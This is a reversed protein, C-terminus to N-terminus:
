FRLRVCEGLPLVNGSAASLTLSVAEVLSQTGPIARTLYAALDKPTLNAAHCSLLIFCPSDSLLNKVRELLVPLDRELKWSGRAGRGFAPPDLVFADYKRDRRKERALFTLVDDVIWRIPRDALGSCAATERAWSVASRAGDVHCVEVAESAASASLTAAGTYAFANLVKVPRGAQQLVETLWQWNTAQEPFLGVQGNTSFRLQLSVNGVDIRWEEPCSARRDWAGSGKQPRRFVADAQQWVSAPSKQAATAQPAPRDLTIGAFRELRRGNGCDLLAYPFSWVCEPQDKITSM